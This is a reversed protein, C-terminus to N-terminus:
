AVTRYLIQAKVFILKTLIPLKSFILSVAGKLPTHKNKTWKEFINHHAKLCDSFLGLEVLLNFVKLRKSGTREQTITLFLSFDTEIKM